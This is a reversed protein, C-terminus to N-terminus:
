KKKIFQSSVRLEWSRGPSPLFPISTVALMNTTRSVAWPVKKKTKDSDSGPYCPIGSRSVCLVFVVAQVLQCANPM